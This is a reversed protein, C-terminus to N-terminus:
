LLHSSQMELVFACLPLQQKIYPAKETSDAGRGYTSQWHGGEANGGGSGQSTM